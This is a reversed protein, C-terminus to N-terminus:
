EPLLREMHVKKLTVSLNVPKRVPDGSDSGLLLSSLSAKNMYVVKPEGQIGGLEAAKDIADYLNGFGDVLGLEKAKTGTYIRGDALTKVESKNMDRGESVETVFNEYSEM